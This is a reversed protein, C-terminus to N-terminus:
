FRWLLSVRLTQFDDIEADEYGYSVDLELDDSLAKGM